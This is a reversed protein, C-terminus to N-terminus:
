LDFLEIMEVSPKGDLVRSSSLVTKDALMQAFSLNNSDAATKALDKLDEDNM